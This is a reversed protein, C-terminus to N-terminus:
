AIEHVCVPLTLTIVCPLVVCYINCLVIYVGVVAKGEEREGVAGGEGQRGLEWQWGLEPQRGLKRQGVSGRERQRVKCQRISGGATGSGSGVVGAAM